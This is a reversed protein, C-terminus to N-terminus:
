GKSLMSRELETYSCSRAHHLLEALAPYQDKERAWASKVGNIYEESNSDNLSGNVSLATPLSTLQRSLDWMTYVLSELDHSPLPDPSERNALKGLVASAAYHVVTGSFDAKTGTEAASAWDFLIVETSDDIPTESSIYGINSPRIDRHCFNAQHAQQLCHVFKAGLRWVVTQGRLEDLPRCVPSALFALKDASAAKVLPVRSVNRLHLADLVNKEKACNELSDFTKVFMTSSSAVSFVRGHLGSGLASRAEVQTTGGFDWQRTTDVDLQVPTAFAFRSMVNQVKGGEYTATKHMVPVM